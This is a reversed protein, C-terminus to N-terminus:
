ARVFEPPAIAALVALAGIVLVWVALRPRYFSMVLSSILVAAGSVGLVGRTADWFKLILLSPMRYYFSVFFSGEIVILIFCAASLGVVIQLGLSRPVLATNTM